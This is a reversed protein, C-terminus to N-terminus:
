SDGEALLTELDALLDAAGEEPSKQGSAVAGFQGNVTDQMSSVQVPSSVYVGFTQALPLMEVYGQEGEPFELQEVLSEQAPYQDYTAFTEASALYSIFAWAEEPHETNPNIGLSRGGLHSIRTESGAPIPATLLPAESQEQAARFTAPPFFSMACDGRALGGVIEPDGWANIAVLSQPTVGEEFYTNFYTFAAALQEETTGVQWTGDEAQEFLTSGNSWLYYNILFWIGSNPASGAAFCFGYQDTRGNGDTDQTLQQSVAYFEDWTAPFATIGAAELLDPRYAMAFTDSTWPLAYTVGEEQNLDLALFDELGTSLPASALLEDIPLLLGNPGLDLVSVFSLHQIDPGGGAQVERVYLNQWDGAPVNEMTVQINPNAANWAEVAVELGAIENPPDFQRFSLEVVDQRAAAAFPLPALVLLVAVLILLTQRM